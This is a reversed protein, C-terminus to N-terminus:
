YIAASIGVMSSMNNDRGSEPAKSFDVYEDSDNEAADGSYLAIQQRSAAHHLDTTPYHTGLLVRRM